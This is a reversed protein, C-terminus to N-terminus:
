GSCSCGMNERTMHQIVHQKWHLLLEAVAPLECLFIKRLTL